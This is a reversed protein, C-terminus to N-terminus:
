LTWGQGLTSPRRDLANYHRVIELQPALASAPLDLEQQYKNGTVLHIPNGAGLNLSPESSAQIAVAGQSCPQGLLPPECTGQAPGGGAAIAFFFFCRVAHRGM